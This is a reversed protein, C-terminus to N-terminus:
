ACVGPQTRWGICTGACCNSGAAYCPFGYAICRKELDFAETGTARAAVPTAAFFAMALLSLASTLFKM